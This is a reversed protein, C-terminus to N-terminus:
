QVAALRAFPQRLKVPTPLADGTPTKLERSVLSTASMDVKLQLNEKGAAAATATTATTLRARKSSGSAAVAKTPVKRKAVVAASTTTTTTTAASVTSGTFSYDYVKRTVPRRLIGISAAGENTRDRL